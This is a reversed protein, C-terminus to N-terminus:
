LREITSTDFLDANFEWQLRYGEDDRDVFLTLDFKASGGDLALPEATLGPLGLKVAPTNQFAFMVQFIPSRSMDRTVHLADVLKEFPLDQHAFAGLAREKVDAVLDAFTRRPDVRVPLALTNAFMGILPETEAHTRNAIPTGIVLDRQASHRALLA